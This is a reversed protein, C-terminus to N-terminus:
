FQENFFGRGKPFIDHLLQIHEDSLEDLGDIAWKGFRLDNLTYTGFILLTIQKITLTLMIVGSPKIQVHQLLLKPTIYFMGDNWECLVNDRTDRDKISLVIGESLPEAGASVLIDKLVRELNIIRGLSRPLILDIVRDRERFAGRADEWVPMNWLVYHVQDAHVRFFEIIAGKARVNLWVVERIIMVPWQTVLSTITQNYFAGIEKASHVINYIIYGDNKGEPSVVKYAFMDNLIANLIDDSRYPMCYTMRQSRIWLPYVEKVTEIKDKLDYIEISTHTQPRLKACNSPNFLLFRMSDGDVYGLNNYFAEQFPFLVSVIVGSDYMEKFDNKFLERVFGKGRHQPTSAVSSIGIGKYITQRLLVPIPVNTLGAVLDKGVFTGMVHKLSLWEYWMNRDDKYIGSSKNFSYDTIKNYLLLEDRTQLERHTVITDKSYVRRETKKVRSINQTYYIHNRKSELICKRILKIHGSRKALLVGLHLTKADFSNYELERRVITENGNDCACLFKMNKM